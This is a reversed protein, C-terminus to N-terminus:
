ACVQGDDAYSIVKWSGGELTVEAVVGDGAVQQEADRNASRGVGVEVAHDREAYRWRLAVVLRVEHRPSFEHRKELSKRVAAVMRWRARRRLDACAPRRPAGPAFNSPVCRSAPPRRLCM